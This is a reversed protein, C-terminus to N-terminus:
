LPPSDRIINTDVHFLIESMTQEIANVEAAESMQM